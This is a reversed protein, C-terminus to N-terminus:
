VCGEFPRFLRFVTGHGRLSRVRMLGEHRDLIEKSVWLGAGTGNMGKTPSFAEFIMGLTHASIGSRTDAVTTVLRADGAAASVGQRSHM